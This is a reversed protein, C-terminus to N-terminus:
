LDEFNESLGPMNYKIGLTYLFAQFSFKHWVRLLCIRMFDWVSSGKDDQRTM